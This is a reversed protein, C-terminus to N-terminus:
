MVQVMMKNAGLVCQSGNWSYPSICNYGCTNKCTCTYTPSSCYYYTTHCTTCAPSSSTCVCSDSVQESHPDSPAPCGCTNKPCPAAYVYCNTNPPCDGILFYPCATTICTGACALFYDPNFGKGVWLIRHLLFSSLFSARWNTLFVGRFLTVKWVSRLRKAHEYKERRHVRKVLKRALREADSQVFGKKQYYTLWKHFCGGCPKSVQFKLDDLFRQLTTAQKQIWTPKQTHLEVREIAREALEYARILDLKKHHALLKRALNDVCRKCVM